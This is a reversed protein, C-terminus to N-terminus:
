RSNLPKLLKWSLNETFNASRSRHIRCSKFRSKMRHCTNVCCHNRGWSSCVLRLLIFNATKEAILGLAGDLEEDALNLLSSDGMYTKVAKRLRIRQLPDLESVAIDTLVIASPDILGFSSQRSIFEHPYFPVAEPKGDVQM